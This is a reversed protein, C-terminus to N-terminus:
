VQMIGQNREKTLVFELFWKSICFFQSYKVDKQKNETAYLRM